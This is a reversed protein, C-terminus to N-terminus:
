EFVITVTPEPGWTVITSAEFAPDLVGESSEVLCSGDADPECDCVDGFCEPALAGTAAFLYEVGPQLPERLVCELVPHVESECDTCGSPLRTERYTVAPWPVTYSGGPDIRVVSSHLCIAPCDPSDCFLAADSCTNRCGLVLEYEGGEPSGGTWNPDSLGFFYALDCSPEKGNHPDVYVVENGHNELVIQVVMDPVQLGFQQCEHCSSECDALTEFPVVGECGGYTFPKCRGDDPDFFYQTIAANCTGSDPALGCAEPNEGSGGTHGGDGDGHGGSTEGASATATGDDDYDGLSTKGVCAPLCVATTLLVLSFGKIYDM